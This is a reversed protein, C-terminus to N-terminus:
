GSRSLAAASARVVTFNMINVTESAAAPPRVFKVFNVTQRSADAAGAGGGPFVRRPSSAM